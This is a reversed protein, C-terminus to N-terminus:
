GGVREAGVARVAGGHYTRGARKLARGDRVGARRGGMKWECTGGGKTLGAASSALPEPPPPPPPPPPCLLTHGDTHTSPGCGALVRRADVSVLSFRPAGVHHLNPSRPHHSNGGFKPGGDLLLFVSAPVSPNPDQQRLRGRKWARRWRLTVGIAPLHSHRKSVNLM